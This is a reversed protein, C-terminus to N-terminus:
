MIEWNPLRPNSFMASYNRKAYVKIKVHRFVGYRCDILYALIAWVSDILIMEHAAELIKICDFFLNDTLQGLELFPMDHQREIRAGECDHYVRYKEWSHNVHKDYKVRELAYDRRFEFDRLRCDPDMNFFRYFDLWFHETLYLRDKLEDTRFVCYQGVGICEIDSPLDFIAIYSSLSPIMHVIEFPLYLNVVNSYQKSYFEALPEADARYVVYLKEYLRANYSVMGLCNFLDTWGQHFLLLGSKM